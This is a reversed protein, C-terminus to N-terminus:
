EVSKRDVGNGTHTGDWEATVGTLGSGDGVYSSASVNGDVTLTHTPNETGIGVRAHQTLEGGSSSVTLIGNTSPNVTSPFIRISGERYAM